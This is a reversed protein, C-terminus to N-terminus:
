KVFVQVPGLVLRLKLYEAFILELLLWQTILVQAMGRKWILSSLVPSVIDGLDTLEYTAIAPNM